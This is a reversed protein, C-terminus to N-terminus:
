TKAHVIEKKSNLWDVFAGHFALENACWPAMDEEPTLPCGGMCFPAVKCNRCKESKQRAITKDWEESYTGPTSVNHCNYLNGDLDVNLTCRGNGCKDGYQGNTIHRMAWYLHYEIFARESFNATGEDYMHLLRMTDSYLQEHDMDVLSKDELGNNLIPNVIVYVDQNPFYERVDKFLDGLPSARSIVSGIDFTNLKEINARNDKFVDYGRTYSSASGDWSVTIAVNHDNFFQVMQENLLKCNSPMGYELDNRRCVIEKIAPFYILPEGGYFTVHTGPKLSYFFRWFKDSIKTPIPHTVLSHQVCYRCHLNCSNGLMVYVKM